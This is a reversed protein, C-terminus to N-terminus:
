VNKADHLKKFQTGKPAGIGINMCPYWVGRLQLPGVNPVVNRQDLDDIRVGATVKIERAGELWHDIGRERILFMADDQSYATVGIGLVFNEDQPFEMWFTELAPTSHM